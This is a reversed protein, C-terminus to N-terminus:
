AVFVCLHRARRQRKREMKTDKHSLAFYISRSRRLASGKAGERRQTLVGKEREGERLGRGPLSIGNGYRARWRGLIVPRSEISEFAGPVFIKKSLENQSKRLAGAM